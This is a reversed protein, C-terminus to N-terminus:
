DGVLSGSGKYYSNDAPLLNYSLIMIGHYYYNLIETFHYGKRAMNKAGEQSLGVGHGYGKGLLVCNGDHFFVSFFASKLNWDRRIENFELTDIGVIYHKIRHKQDCQFALTDPPVNIKFNKLRLYNFWLGAPIIKEWRTNLQDVSFPDLVPLLYAEGNLWINEAGQTEGGSNSHYAAVIPVSDSDTLILDKTVEASIVVDENWKNRGKYSQCHVNDCLNFGEDIHRNFNRVAYTRCIITQVKYFDLPAVPGAETEVVGMLYKELDLVNIIQLSGYYQNIEFNGYYSRGPLVPSAPKINIISQDGNSALYLINLRTWNKNDDRLWLTQKHSTLFIQQGISLEQVKGDHTVYSYSGASCSIILSQIIHPHYLSIRVDVALSVRFLSLLFLSFLLRNYKM